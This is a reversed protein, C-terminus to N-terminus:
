DCPLSRFKSMFNGDMSRTKAVKKRFYNYGKDRREARNGRSGITEFEAGTQEPPSSSIKASERNEGEKEKREQTGDPRPSIAQSSVPCVPGPNSSM